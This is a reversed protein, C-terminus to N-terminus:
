VRRRRFHLKVYVKGFEFPVLNGSDDKIDIEVSSFDKKLVPVYNYNMYQMDVNEGFQRKEINIMRLVQANVNGVIQPAILDCYVFLSTFGGTLDPPHQAYNVTDSHVGAVIQAANYGLIYQLKKSLEITYGRQKVAVMIRNKSEKYYFKVSIDKEYSSLKMGDGAKAKNLADVLEHASSYSKEPIYYFNRHKPGNLKFYNERLKITSWSYPYSIEALAVEWEGELSINKPLNVRYSNTKNEDGGANSPLTLYFDHM